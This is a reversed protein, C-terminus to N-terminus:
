KIQQWNVTSETLIPCKNPQDWNVTSETSMRCKSQTADTSQLNMRCVASVQTDGTSREWHGINAASCDHHRVSIGIYSIFQIPLDSHPHAFQVCLSMHITPSYLTHQSYVSPCTLPQPICHTHQSYVSPCTLTQPICHTSVTCLPVHSHKPFAIHAAKTENRFAVREHIICQCPEYQSIFRWVLFFTFLFAQRHTRPVLFTPWLAVAAADTAAAGVASDM